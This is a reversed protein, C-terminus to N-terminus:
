PQFVLAKPHTWTRPAEVPCHERSVRPCSRSLSFLRIPKFLNFSFFFIKPFVPFILAGESRSQPHGLTLPVLFSSPGKLPKTSPLAM